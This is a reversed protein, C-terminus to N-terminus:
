NDNNLFPQSHIVDVLRNVPTRFSSFILNGRCLGECIVIKLANEEFPLTAVKLIVRNEKELCFFCM